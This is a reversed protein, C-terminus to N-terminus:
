VVILLSSIDRNVSGAHFDPEIFFLPLGSRSIEIVTQSMESNENVAATNFDKDIIPIRDECGSDERLSFFGM